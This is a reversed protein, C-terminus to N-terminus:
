AFRGVFDPSGPGSSVSIFEIGCAESLARLVSVEPFDRGPTFFYFLTVQDFRAAQEDRMWAIFPSIGVGGGIWVERSCEPKREFRGYPAYVQAHMGPEIRSILENTFDGLARIVFTIRGDPTP